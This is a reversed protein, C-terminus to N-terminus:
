QVKAKQKLQDLHRKISGPVHTGSSGSYGLIVSKEYEGYCREALASHPQESICARFYKDHLSWVGLDQLAGYTLGTLYFAEGKLGSDPYQQMLEHMLMSARLYKVEDHGGIPDKSNVAQKVLDQAGKVLAEASEYRKSKEKQWTAIDKEWVKAGEKMSFSATPSNLVARALFRAKAPDKKVRVAISLAIRSARELDLPSVGPKDNALSSMVQTLVSDFQRSAAMFEIKTIWSAKKLPDSYASLMPFETGGKTRTHCAICYSTSSRIVSKAYDTHGEKLSAQAREIDEKFLSALYPLAPDYDKSKVMHDSVVDLNQSIEHIRNIKESLGKVDATPDPFLYPIAESMANSLENMKSRWPQEAASAAMSVLGVLVILRLIM